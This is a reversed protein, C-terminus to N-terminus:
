PAPVTDPVPGAAEALDPHARRFAPSFLNVRHEVLMRMTHAAADPPLLCANVGSACDAPPHAPDRAMAGMSRAMHVYAARQHPVGQWGLWAIPLQLALVAVALATAIWARSARPVGAAGKADAAAGRVGAACTTLAMLLLAVLGVQYFFVYREQDLFGPGRVYIRGLLIGAVNAYFLLMTCLAVFWTAGVRARAVRWWFWAHAAGMVVALLHRVAEWHAPFWAVLVTKGAIGGSMPVAFLTWADRWQAALMSLRTGVPLNFVAQTTGRIEGVTAYLVRCAVLAVLLLGLMRPVRGLTGRRWCLVVCAFAIALGLLIASDDGLVGGVLAIVAFAAYAGRDVARWALWMTAFACLYFAHQMAVMPYGYIFAGNLSLLVAGVAAAVPAALLPRPGAFTSTADRAAVWALLLSSVIACGVGVMAEHTFDLGCARYDFWMLLKNLPQAHDVGARKVLLDGLGVGDELAVRLFTEIFTWNDSYVLPNAVRPAYLLVNAIWPALLALVCAVAVRWRM